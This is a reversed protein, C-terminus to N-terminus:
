SILHTIEYSAIIIIIVFVSAVIIAAFRFIEDMKPASVDQFM